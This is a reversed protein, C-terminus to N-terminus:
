SCMPPGPELRAALSRALRPVDAVCNIVGFNSFVGDFRAAQPLSDLSEVPLVQFQISGAVGAAEAKARALRIMEASADVAYVRHGTRALHVADEGTGCGLELIRRRGGFVRPLREHVLSRLVEGCASRTFERDYGAALEDFPSAAM